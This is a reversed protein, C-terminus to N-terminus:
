HDDRLNNIINMLSYFLLSNQLANLEFVIRYVLKTMDKM